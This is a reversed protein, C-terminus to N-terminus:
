DETVLVSLGCLARNVWGLSSFYESRTHVVNSRGMWFSIAMQKCSIFSAAVLEETPTPTHATGTRPSIGLPLIAPGCLFQIQCIRPYVRDAKVKAKWRWWRVGGSATERGQWLEQRDRRDDKDHVTGRHPKPAERRRMDQSETYIEKTPNEM